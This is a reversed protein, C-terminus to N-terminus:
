NHQLLDKLETRNLSLASNMAKSAWVVRYISCSSITPQLASTLLRLGSSTDACKTWAQTKRAPGGRPSAASAKITTM